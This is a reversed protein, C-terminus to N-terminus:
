LNVSAMGAEDYRPGAAAPLESDIRALVLRRLYSRIEAEEILHHLTESCSPMRM